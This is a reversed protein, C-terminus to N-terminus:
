GRVQTLGALPRETQADKPSSERLVAQPRTTGTQTFISWRRRRVQLCGYIILQSLDTRGILVIDNRELSRDFAHGESQNPM